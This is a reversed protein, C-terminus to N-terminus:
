KMRRTQKTRTVCLLTDLVSHMGATIVIANGKWQSRISSMKEIGYFNSVPFAKDCLVM